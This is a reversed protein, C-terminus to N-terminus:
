KARPGSVGAGIVSPLEESGMSYLLGVGSSVVFILFITFGAILWFAVSIDEKQCASGGFYTTKKSGDENTRVVPKTCACAYCSKPEDDQTKFKLLCEGHGTCNRTTSECASLSSFCVPIIGSPGAEFPGVAPSEAKPIPPRSTPISESMPAEANLLDRKPLQYSGYSSRSGTSSSYPLAAVTISISEDRAFGLIGDLEETVRALTWEDVELFHKIGNFAYGGIRHRESHETGLYAAQTTIDKLLQQTRADDPVDGIEFRTYRGDTVLQEPEELGEIVVLAKPQKSVPTAQFLPASAGFRNLVDLVQADDEPISHFQGLGLRQALILRATEASVSPLDPDQAPTRDPDWLFVRGSSAVVGSALYAGLWLPTFLQM